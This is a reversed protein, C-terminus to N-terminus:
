DAREPDGVSWALGILGGIMLVGGIPTIAGLIGLDLLVLLYLSGSFILSGLSLAWLGISSLRVPAVALGLLALMAYAQYRVATNWVDLRGPEVWHSLGHAGFAGAAIAVSLGVLAVRMWIVRVM